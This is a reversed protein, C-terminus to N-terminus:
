MGVAAQYLRYHLSKFTSSVLKTDFTQQFHIEVQNQMQISYHNVFHPHVKKAVELSILDFMAVTSYM